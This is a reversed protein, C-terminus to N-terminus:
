SALVRESPYLVERRRSRIRWVVGQCNHRHLCVSPPKLGHGSTPITLDPHAAGCSSALMVMVSAPFFHSRDVCAGRSISTCDILGGTPVPAVACDRRAAGGIHSPRCQPLANAGFLCSIRMCKSGTSIPVGYRSRAQRQYRPPPQSSLM